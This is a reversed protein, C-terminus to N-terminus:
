LKLIRHLDTRTVLGGIGKFQELFNESVTAIERFKKMQDRDNRNFAYGSYVNKDEDYFALIPINFSSADAAATLKRLEGLQENTGVKDSSPLLTSYFGISYTILGNLTLVAASEVITHHGQAIM